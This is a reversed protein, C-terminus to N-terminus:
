APCCYLATFRSVQHIQDFGYSLRYVNQIGLYAGPGLIGRFPEHHRGVARQRHGHGDRLLGGEVEEQDVRVPLQGVGAAM